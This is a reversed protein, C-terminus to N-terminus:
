ATKQDHQLSLERDRLVWGQLDCFSCYRASTSWIKKSFRLWSSSIPRWSAWCLNMFAPHLTSPIFPHLNPWKRLFNMRVNPASIPTLKPWKKGESAHFSFDSSNGPLCLLPEIFEMRILARLRFPLKYFILIYQPISELNALLNFIIWSASQFRKHITIILSPSYLNTCTKQM